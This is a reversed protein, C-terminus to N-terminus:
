VTLGQTVLRDRGSNKAQYLAKDSAQLWDSATPSANLEAIGISITIRLREQEYEIELDRVVDLLREALQVATSTTTDQLVVAFEEGGYRAVFDTRRPFSQVCCNALRKLVQDGAPHGFTDNIRKFHDADVMMLCAPQGSLKCLEFVRELQIDFAKRNYLRTLPDLEMERQAADLEGRMEHLKGTLENLLGQNRRSREKAIDTILNIAHLATESLTEIPANGEIATRMHGIASLVRTQEEQDEALVRGLTQVFDGMVQRTGVIQRNVYSQENRRLRSVFANLGPWDRRATLEPDGDGTEDEPAPELGPRPTAMLIHRVWGDIQENISSAKIEDLDFAYQGWTKLVAALQDLATREMVPSTPTARQSKENSGQTAKPSESASKGRKWFKAM